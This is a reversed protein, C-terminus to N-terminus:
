LTERPKGILLSHSTGLVWSYLFGYDRRKKRAAPIAIQSDRFLPRIERLGPFQGKKSCKIRRAWGALELGPGPLGEWLDSGIEMHRFQFRGTVFAAIRDLKRRRDDELCLPPFQM